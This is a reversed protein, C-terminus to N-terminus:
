VGQALYVPKCRSCLRLYSLSDAYEIPNPRDGVFFFQIDGGVIGAGPVQLLSRVGELLWDTHPICDSDTFAIAEGKALELGKNRAANNSPKSEQCYQVNPFQQCISYIDETSNNDCVIVEYRAYPYSQHYLADLCRLLRDSDNQCPIVVSVFPKAEVVV